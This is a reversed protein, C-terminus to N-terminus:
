LYGRLADTRASLDALTSGISNIREIDMLSAVETPASAIAPITIPSPASKRMDPQRARLTRHCHGQAHRKRRALRSLSFRWM